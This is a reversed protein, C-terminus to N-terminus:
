GFSSGSAEAALYGDCADVMGYWVMGYGYRRSARTSVCVGGVKRHTVVVFKVLKFFGIKKSDFVKKKSDILFKLRYSLGQVSVKSPWGGGM